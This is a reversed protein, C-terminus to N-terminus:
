QIIVMPMAQEYMEHTGKETSVYQIYKKWIGNIKKSFVHAIGYSVVAEKGEEKATYRTICKESAFVENVNRELFRATLETSIKKNGRDGMVKAADDIYEQLNMIRNKQGGAVWQFDNSCVGNYLAPNNTNVGKLFPIWIHEDLQKVLSAKDTQSFSFLPLLLCILIMKKHTM